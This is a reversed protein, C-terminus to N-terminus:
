GMLLGAKALWALSNEVGAAVQDAPVLGALGAALAARDRTGDMLQVLRRSPEDDLRLTTHLLTTVHNGTAAERRALPSAAPREGPTFAIAPRHGHLDCFGNSYGDLVMNALEWANVQASGGLRGAVAEVLESFPIREPSRDCLTTLVAKPLPQDVTVKRGTPTGFAMATGPSLDVSETVRSAMTSVHLDPIAEASPVALPARDARCLITRHFRRLKLFDLYQERLLPDQKQMAALQRAIAPPFGATSQTQPQSDAVYGLGYRGAHAVFDTLYMPDNTPSLDDHYLLYSDEPDIAKEVDSRIAAAWVDGSTSLGDHLFQLCGRAEAIQEGPDATGRTHLKLMDWIVRRFHSGPLANYSIYALGDPALKEQCLALLRDRVPAPVWSYVGHAAIYDFPEPGPNWALLDAHVLEVNPLGLDRVVQWGREVAAASLDVGVFRAAPLALAAAILHTGTGCGVELYRCREAPAPSLGYLSGIVYFNDPHATPLAHTRYAVADYAFPEAM